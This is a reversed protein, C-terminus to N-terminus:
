GTFAPMECLSFNGGGKCLLALGRRLERIKDESVAYQRALGKVVEGDGGMSMIVRYEFATRLGTPVMKDSQGGIIYKIGYKRGQQGIKTPIAFPNRSHKDLMDKAEDHFIYIEHEWGVHGVRQRERMVSRMLTEILLQRPANELHQLDIRYVGTSNFKILNPGFMNGNMLLNLNGSLTRLQESDSNFADAYDVFRIKEGNGLVYKSCEEKIAKIHREYVTVFSVLDLKKSELSKIKKDDYGDLVKLQEDIVEIGLKASKLKNSKSFYGAKWLNELSKVFCNLDNMAPGINMWTETKDTIGYMSYLCRILKGLIDKQRVGMGKFQGEMFELMIIIQVSPGGNKPDFGIELPNIGYSSKQSFQIEIDNATDMDGAPDFVVVINDKGLDHIMRRMLTTKGQGPAGFIAMNGNETPKPSYYFRHAENFGIMFGSANGVDEKIGESVKDLIDDSSSEVKYNGVGMRSLDELLVNLIAQSDDGDIFSAELEVAGDIATLSVKSGCPYSLFNDNM